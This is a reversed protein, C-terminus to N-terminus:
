VRSSQARSRGEALIGVSKRDQLLLDNPWKLRLGIGTHARVADAVALSTWFGVAPLAEAPLESPLITSVLLGAGPPSVWSRGARGRGETQSETVFSIGFSDNSYLREVAVANTSGVGTFYEIRGFRPLASVRSRLLAIDLPRMLRFPGM